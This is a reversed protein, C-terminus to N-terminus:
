QFADSANLLRLTEDLCPLRDDVVAQDVRVDEHVHHGDRQGDVVEAGRQQATAVAATPHPYSM